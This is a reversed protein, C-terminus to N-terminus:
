KWQGRKAAMAQDMADKYNPPADASASAVGNLLLAEAVDIQRRTLCRFTGSSAPECSLYNEHSGLWSEFRGRQAAAIFAVGHLPLARGDIQPWGDVSIGQVAGAVATAKSSAQIQPAPVVAPTAPGAVPASGRRVLAQPIAVEANDLRSGCRAPAKPVHASWRAEPWNGVAPRLGTVPTGPPLTCVSGHGDRVVFNTLLVGDGLSAVVAPTRAPEVARHEGSWELLAWVPLLIVGMLALTTLLSRLKGHQAQAPGGANRYKEYPEASAVARSTVFASAAALILAVFLLPQGWFYMLRLPGLPLNHSAQQLAAAAMVGLVGLLLPGAVLWRIWGGFSRVAAKLRAGLRQWAGDLTLWLALEIVLMEGYSLGLAVPDAGIAGGSHLVGGGLTLLPSLLALLTLAKLLSAGLMRLRGRWVLGAGPALLPELAAAKRMRAYTGPLMAADGAQSRSAGHALLLRTLGEHGWFAAWHLPAKGQSLGDVRAGAALLREIVPLYAEADQHLFHFAYLATFLSDCPPQGEVALNPGMRHIDAGRALLLELLPPVRDLPSTTLALHLPLRGDAGTTQNVDAGADLLRQVLAVDVPYQNKQTRFATLALGLVTHGDPRVHRHSAGRALLLAVMNERRYRAAAALATDGETDAVELDAGHDLMYTVAPENGNAAATVLPKWPEAPANFDLGQAVFEELLDLRKAKLLEHALTGQRQTLDPVFEALRLGKFARVAGLQDAPQAQPLAELHEVIGLRQLWLLVRSHREALGARLAAQVDAPAGALDEPLFFYRGALQLRNRGGSHLDYVLQNFALLAGQPGLFRARAATAFEGEGRAQLFLYFPDFPQTLAQVYHAQEALLADGLEDETACRRGGATVFPRAADLTYVARLLGAQRHADDQDFQRVIKEIQTALEMDRAADLWKGITGLYLYDLGLATHKELLAALEAPTQYYEDGRFALREYVRQTRTYDVELAQRDVWRRVQELGFRQKASPNLLGKILTELSADMGPPFPVECDQVQRKRVGDSVGQFPCQGQWCELLTIGLAFYDVKETVLTQTENAFRSLEPAAYERTGNATVQVETAGPARLSSIGFDAVAVSEFGPGSILINEPKLDQYILGVRQHLHELGDALQRVLRRLRELDQLPGERRLLQDLTGAPFYELLEYDQGSESGFGHIAVVNAHPRAQLAALASLPAHLGPRYHKLVLRQTGDSVVYTRAESTTTSLASEVRYGTGRLTVTQGIMLHQGGDSGMQAAPSGPAASQADVRATGEPGAAAQPAM